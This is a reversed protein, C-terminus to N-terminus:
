LHSVTERCADVDRAIGFLYEDYLELRRRLRVNEAQLTMEVCDRLDGQYLARDRTEQQEFAPHAPRSFTSSKHTHEGEDQEFALAWVYADQNNRCRAVAAARTYHLMQFDAVRDEGEPEVRVLPPLRFLRYICRQWLPLATLPLLRGRIWAMPACVAPADRIPHTQSLAVARREASVLAAMEHTPATTASM